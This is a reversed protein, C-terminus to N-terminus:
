RVTGESNLLPVEGQESYNLGVGDLHLNLLIHIPGVPVDVRIKKLYSFEAFHFLLLALVLVTKMASQVVCM